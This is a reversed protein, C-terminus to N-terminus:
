NRKEVPSHRLARLPPDLAPNVNLAFEFREETFPVFGAFRAVPILYFYLHLM